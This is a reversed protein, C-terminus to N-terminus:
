GFYTEPRAGTQQVGTPRELVDHGRGLRTETPKLGVVDVQERNMTEIRVSRQFFCRAREIVQHLPAQHSVNTIGIEVRPLGGLEQANLLSHAVLRGASFPTISALPSRWNEM